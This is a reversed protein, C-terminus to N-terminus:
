ADYDSTSEIVYLFDDNQICCKFFAKWGAQRIQCLANAGVTPTNPTLYAQMKELDVVGFAEKGFIYTQHVTTSAAPNV